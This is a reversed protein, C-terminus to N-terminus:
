RVLRKELERSLKDTIFYITGGKETKRFACRQGQTHAIDYLLKMPINYKRHVEPLSLCKESFQM